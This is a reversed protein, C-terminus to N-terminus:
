SKLITEYLGDKKPVDFESCVFPDVRIEVHVFHRAVTHGRVYERKEQHVQGEVPKVSRSVTRM